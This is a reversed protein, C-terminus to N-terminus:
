KRVWEHQLQKYSGRSVPVATNDKACVYFMGGPVRKVLSMEGDCEPCHVMLRQHDRMKPNNKSIAM